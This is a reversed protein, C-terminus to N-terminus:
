YSIFHIGVYPSVNIKSPSRFERHKSFTYASTTAAPLPPPGRVLVRSPHAYGADDPGGALFVAPVGDNMAHTVEHVLPRCAQFPIPYQQCDSVKFIQTVM